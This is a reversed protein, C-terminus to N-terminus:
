INKEKYIKEKVLGYCIPMDNIIVDLIQNVGKMNSVEEISKYLWNMNTENFDCEGAYNMGLYYAMYAMEKNQKSITYNDNMLAEKIMTMYESVSNAKGVFGLFSYYVDTHVIVQKGLIASETGVTSTFPLVVKCHEIYEYTNLQEFCDAFYVRSEDKFYEDIVEKYSDTNYSSLNKTSPHERILINAQTNCLIFKCTDILWDKESKFIKNKGLAAADWMVNLPIVVDFWNDTVKSFSGDLYCENSKDSITSYRRLNFNEKALKIVKEKEYDIFIDKKLLKVIDYRHSCPGDTAWQPANSAGDYTVIRINQKKCIKSYFYRQGHLGTFVTVVDYNNETFFGKIKKLSEKFVSYFKEEWKDEKIKIIREIKRSRQWVANLHATESLLSIDAEELEISPSDSLFKISVGKRKARIKEIVKNICLKVDNTIGEYISINENSYLDDIILETNIYGKSILVLYIAIDFMPPAMFTCSAIIGLRPSTNNKVGLEEPLSEVFKIMLDTHFDVKAIRFAKEYQAYVNYFDENEVLDYSELQEKMSITHQGCILVVFSGKTESKISEPHRVDYKDNNWKDYNVDIFYDININEPILKPLINLAIGASYCIIKKGSNAEFLEEWKDDLYNKSIWNNM